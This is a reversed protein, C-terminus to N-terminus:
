GRLMLLVIVSFQRKFFVFRVRVVVLMPTIHLFYIIVASACEM